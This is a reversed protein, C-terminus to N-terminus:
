SARLKKGIRRLSRVMPHFKLGGGRMPLIRIHSPWVANSDPAHRKVFDVYRRAMAVDSYDTLATRRAAASLSELRSRDRDLIEVADAYQSPADRRVRFGNQPTIMETVLCPIEGCVPVLGRGMGEILSLPGGEHASTLLYIDHQAVLAPLADHRVPTSFHVNGAAIGERLHELLFDKEPGEGHITWKFALDRRVFERYLEPFIRVQKQSEQLRGFYLLRLPGDPNASRKIQEDYFTVGHQLYTCPVGPFHDRM